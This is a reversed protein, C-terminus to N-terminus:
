KSLHRRVPMAHTEVPTSNSNADLNAREQQKLLMTTKWNKYCYNECNKLNLVLFTSSSKTQIESPVIHCWIKFTWVGKLTARVQGKQM